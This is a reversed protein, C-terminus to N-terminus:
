EEAKKSKGYQLTVQELLKNLVPLMSRPDDMLGASVLANDFVQEAVVKAIDDNSEMAKFLKVILQHKPNIELKQADLKMNLTPNQMRRIARMAPNEPNKIVAPTDVLRKSAVISAIRGPLADKWWQGLTKVEDESLGEHDTKDDEQVDLDGQEVSKVEKGNTYGLSAMVFEDAAHYAYLVEIDKKKFSEMYPSDEAYERNPAVLYYITKGEEGMRETYEELTTREGKPLKSSEFLLLKSLDDKYLFDTSIGEKFFKGFRDYFTVYKERDRRQMDNFFKIIKKTLIGNIRRILPSDQLHERSLNLPLDESDVAGRVFRLFDPLIERHKAKILVKKSYVNVGPEMKGMGFNETHDDPIYFLAHINLPVDVNFQITYLPEGGSHSLYKFFQSHEEKTVNDKNKLWIADLTNVLNGNLSVKYSVFNSYKKIIREVAERSAFEKEHDKLYIVIKTGRAVGEAESITYSGEGVSEWCYGQSGPKASRTYVRVKEAVMFSSYFGVGFQGIINSAVDNANSGSSERLKNVFAKSGSHAITGINQVLEDKSMGVGTDQITFTQKAEDVSINIQLPLEADEIQSSISMQRAKELADSANSILERIFVEKDTYLATAVIHLLQKTEAQFDKSEKQGVINETEEILGEKSLAEAEGPTVDEVVVDDAEKEKDTEHKVARTLSFFRQSDTFRTPPVSTKTVVNRAFIVQRGIQKALQINRSRLSSRLM